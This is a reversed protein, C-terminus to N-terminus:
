ITAPQGASAVNPTFPEGTEMVPVGVTQVPAVVEKDSADPSPVQLLLLPDIAVIPDDEPITFPM